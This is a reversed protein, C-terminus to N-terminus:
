KAIFHFNIVDRYGGQTGSFYNGKHPLNSNKFIVATGAPGTVRTSPGGYSLRSHTIAVSRIVPIFEPPNKYEFPSSEDSVNTLYVIM